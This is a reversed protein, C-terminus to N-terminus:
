PTGGNMDLADNLRVVRHGCQCIYSRQCILGESPREEPRPAKYVPTLDAEICGRAKAHEISEYIYYESLDLYFDADTPITM